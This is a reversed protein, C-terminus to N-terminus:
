RTSRPVQASVVRWDRANLRPLSLNVSALRRLDARPQGRPFRGPSGPMFARVGGEQWPSDITVLLTTFWLPGTLFFASESLNYILLIPWFVVAIRGLSDGRVLRNVANLGTTWILVGLLVLAVFGGYLYVELYGNHATLLRNTGLERSVSEGVASEWFGRFGAGILHNTNKELIV